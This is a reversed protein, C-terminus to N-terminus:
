HDGRRDYAIWPINIPDRYEDTKYVVNKYDCQAQYQKEFNRLLACASVGDLNKIYFLIRLDRVSLDALVKLFEERQKFLVERTAGAQWTFRDFHSIYYRNQKLYINVKPIEFSNEKM